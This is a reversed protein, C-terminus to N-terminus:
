DRTSLPVSETLHKRIFTRAEHIRFKLTAVSLGLQAAIESYELDALDRLLFPAV